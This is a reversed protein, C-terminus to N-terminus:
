SADLEYRLRKSRWLMELFANEERWVDGGLLSTMGQRLVPDQERAFFLKPLLTRQYIAHILTAFVGYGKQMREKHAALVDPEAETGAELAPILADAAGAADFMGLHVGSSFVPDLFCSSDGVCSWRVGRPRRNQFSFSVLKHHPGQPRAGELLRSLEPSKEIGQELWENRLGKNRTVLGVSLRGEGLPIAWLWGTELFLVKVNGQAVVEDAIEPRLDAYHRYVAGLGFGRLRDRTGNRYALFADLGTADLLYRAQYSGKDTRVTVPGESELDVETVREGQHAQAGAAMAHELLSLDFAARDVQFAHNSGGLSDAFLYTAKLGKSEDFFEAGAKRVHNAEKALDVGLREFLELNTPLLSEGIHFRPFVEREIVLVKAGTAAVLHAATSGSPGGGVVILDHM